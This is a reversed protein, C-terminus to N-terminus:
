TPIDYMSDAWHRDLNAKFQNLTDASVVESPLANWENIVRVSFSNRRATTKAQPKALKWDHGRTRRSTSRTLFNEAPISMGGHLLQYVAVMDGRRRRHYLSPLRLARLREQYPLARLSEVLRTARRQVREVKKQDLKSFPGWIINGYELVPRVMAKYLLPLMFTDLNCFSRRVLALMQTAKAVVAAAQEHFKLQRDMIIGLDKESLVTDITTGQLSYTLCPNRSGVHMVKCKSVNFKLLWRESWEVLADLDHQLPLASLQPQPVRCYVKTDDAFLKVSSSVCNPLDNVYITFLTPGLVTGQPIGSSVPSWDSMSGQVVVRQFRGTLFSEIWELLKGGVGYARLKSLLRKHPVTDFAKSFDLYSVDLSHGGELATTWDEMVELLQTSCSRKPLFGHQALHLFGMESMHRLLGDRVFSELIKSPVSTLSVPRYNAPSQRSGKKFIPVVHGSKWDFPLTGADLSKRFLLCLPTALHNASDRLIRPLVSDPGPASSVNISSLKRAVSAATIPVDDLPQCDVHLNLEPPNDLGEDTFVSSFFTNLLTAKEENSTAASGLEDRLDGVGGRTKLRSSTYRWFAKPDDKIRSALRKEFGRRLKRTLSRLSNRCTSFRALDIPDGTRIYRKWLVKKRKKLQIARSDIYLNKTRHRATNRKSCSTVAKVMTDKFFTYAVDFDMGEMPSWDVSSLTSTLLGYDIRSNHIDPQVKLGSYCVLCFNLMVHDSSSLGPLHELNRIMGEENTFVLDLVNPNEGHRYRTPERIHQFFFCSQVIDIFDHSPHSEPASSVESNWDIEPLNFDGCIMVHSAGLECAQRFIVGLQQVSDQINASPSRYVCGILLRDRGVLELECWLHEVGQSPWSHEVVEFVSSIYVCIGRQGSTGLNSQSPDFNAHLTYGPISLLAPAIPLRQAKPITETLMIIDPKDDCIWLCLDDRKSVFQDTNTYLVKLM